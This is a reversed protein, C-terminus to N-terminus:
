VPHSHLNGNVRGTVSACGGRQKNASSPPPCCSSERKTGSFMHHDLCRVLVRAPPGKCWPQRHSVLWSVCTCVCLGAPSPSFASKQTEKESIEERAAAEMREQGDRVLVCCYLPLKCKYDAAPMATESPMLM